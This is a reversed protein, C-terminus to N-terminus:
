KRPGIAIVFCEWATVHPITIAICSVVGAGQRHYRMRRATGPSVKGLKGPWQWSFPFQGEESHILYALVTPHQLMWPCGFQPFFVAKWFSFLTVTRTAPRNAHILAPPAMFRTLGRHQVDAAYFWIINRLYRQIKLRWCM